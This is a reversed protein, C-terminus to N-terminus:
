SRAPASTVTASTDFLAPSAHHPADHWLRAEAGVATFLVYGLEDIILLKVCALHQQLKRLRREDRAEMLEHVLAAATVFVRLGSAAITCFARRCAASFTLRMSTAM